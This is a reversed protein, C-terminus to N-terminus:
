IKDGTDKDNFCSINCDLINLGGMQEAKKAEIIAKYVTAVSCSIFHLLAMQGM